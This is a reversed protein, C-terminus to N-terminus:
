EGWQVGVNVPAEPPAVPIVAPPPAAVEEVGAPPPPASAAATEVPAATKGSVPDPSSSQGAAVYVATNDAGSFSVTGEAVRLNVTDFDFVTGRVSATAIPSRVRFETTGGVPPKVNVRIRGARLSINIRDTNAMAVIEELSLRTLPQVSLTSEGLRILAASKFGTSVLTAQELEQGIVATQWVSSGPAKVEVTGRLERIIAQPSQAWVTGTTILLVVLVKKM